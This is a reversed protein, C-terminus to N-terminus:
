YGHLWTQNAGFSLVPRYDYSASADFVQDSANDLLYHRGEYRVILMAHDANRVLDRAITLIMDQRPFGAAALLQMKTLAIDECDGQGLKLTKKAGAWFDARAFLDNDEVYEIRDNVWANISRLTELGDDSIPGMLGVLRRSSIHEASVRKWERDFQTRGIKLRKSGLFEDGSVAVAPSAIALASEDLAHECSGSEYRVGGVSPILPLIPTTAALVPATAETLPAEQALRIQDLASPLGGLIAASKLRAAPELPVAAAMLTHGAASDCGPGAGVAASLIEPEISVAAASGPNLGILSTAAVTLIAARGVSPLTEPGFM